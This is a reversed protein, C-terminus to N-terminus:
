WRESLWVSIFLLVAACAAAALVGLPAALASFLASFGTRGILGGVYGRLFPVAAGSGQDHHLRIAVTAAIVPASALAGSWFAGLDAAFLTVIGTVVGSTGATFAVRWDTARHAAIRAAPAPASSGVAFANARLILLCVGCVALSLLLLLADMDLPWLLLAALPLACLLLGILLAGAPCANRSALAYGLGFLACLGGAAVSGDAADAAFAPGREVGLWLLAPATVIPLGVVLGALRQGGRSAVALLLAVGAATLLAKFIPDM